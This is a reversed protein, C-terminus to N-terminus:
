RFATPTVDSAGLCVKELKLAERRSKSDNGLLLYYFIHFNRERHGQHAVRSKELLYQAITVGEIHLQKNFKLELYKGFRSSNDNM